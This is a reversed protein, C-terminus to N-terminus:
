KKMAIKVDGCLVDSYSCSLTKPIISNELRVVFVSQYIDEIVGTYYSIKKRGHNVHMEVGKGKLELIKTKIENLDMTPERM